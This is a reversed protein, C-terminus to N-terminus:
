VVAARQTILERARQLTSDMSARLGVCEGKAAPLVAELLQTELQIRTAAGEQELVELLRFLEAPAASNTEAQELWGRLFELWMGLRKLDHELLQQRLAEPLAALRAAFTDLRGEKAFREVCAADLRLCLQLAVFCLLSRPVTRRLDDYAAVSFEQPSRPKLAVWARKDQAVAHELASALVDNLPLHRTIQATALTSWIADFTPLLEARPLAALPALARQALPAVAPAVVADLLAAVEPHTPSLRAEFAHLADLASRLRVAVPSELDWPQGAQGATERAEVLFAERLRNMISAVATKVLLAFRELSVQSASRRVAEAESQWAQLRDLVPSLLNITDVAGRGARAESLAELKLVEREVASELLAIGRGRLYRVLPDVPGRLREVRELLEAHRPLADVEAAAVSLGQEIVRALITQELQALLPPAAEPDDGAQEALDLLAPLPTSPWSAPELLVGQTALQRFPTRDLQALCREFVDRETKIIKLQRAERPDQEQAVRELLQAPPGSQLLAFRLFAFDDPLVELPRQPAEALKRYVVIAKLLKGARVRTRISLYRSPLFDPIARVAAAMEREFLALFGVLRDSAEPTIRVREVMDQLADLDQITLYAHLAAKGGLLSQRMVQRMPADSSFGKPVFGVFAIRDVFALLSERSEELVETLYRNSTMLSCEIRGRVTNTGQKLEREGLLNLTSRLLMDRGDFVEDLFAHVSGIVGEDTFHQSRGTEMLTKFDIPGVLDTLVTNETFQRAFLSPEGTTADLIRGLVARALQSKATGPPGVLLVHERALLALAIQTLVDERELFAQGLERFYEAFRAAPREPQGWQVVGDSASM